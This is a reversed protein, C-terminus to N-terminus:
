NKAVLKAMRPASLPLFFEKNNDNEARREMAFNIKMKDQRIKEHENKINKNNKDITIIIM